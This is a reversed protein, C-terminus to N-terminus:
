NTLDTLTIESPKVGLLEFMKVTLIDWMAEKRSDPLNSVQILTGMQCMDLLKVANQAAVPIESGLEQHQFGFVWLTVGTSAGGIYSISVASNGCQYSMGTDTIAPLNIPVPDPLYLLLDGEQTTSLNSSIGSVGGGLGVSSTDGV